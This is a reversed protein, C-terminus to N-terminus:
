VAPEEALIGYTTSRRYLRRGLDGAIRAMTAPDLYSAEGAGADVSVEDEFMTGGLDDGGSLLLASTMKPGVKGWSVQVHDVNDLYLRAVAIMLIDERGTAGAPARGARYLPTNQYVYSMPVLETFGGTGDQVGRLLDLHTIRDAATEGAGYMITATSRIGMGHAERIVRLWTATDCKNPCIVARVGDVLIEAATGQLTGLGAERLRGLVERASLGARGAVFSVEEPSCFHIDVGPAVERIWGILDVYSEVTFDPHVGSLPCIETVGREVAQRARRQVEDRGHLYTGPAGRARGFGCFGCLNKCVNTVHLNQNRVYTVRNGVRDERAEDAAAAIALVDRGTARILRRGESPTLRHGALTDALLVGLDV